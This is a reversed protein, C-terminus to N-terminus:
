GRDRPSPSTYLLCTMLHELLAVDPYNTTRLVMEVENVVDEPWAFPARDSWVDAIRVHDISHDAEIAYLSEIYAKDEYADNVLQPLAEYFRECMEANVGYLAVPIM